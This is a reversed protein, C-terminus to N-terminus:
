ASPRRREVVNRDRYVDKDFAPPRGSHSGRRRRNAMQASYAEDGLM